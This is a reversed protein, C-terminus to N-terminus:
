EYERVGENCDYLGEIKEIKEKTKNLFDKELYYRIKYGMLPYKGGFAIINRKDSLKNRVEEPTLLKRAVTNESINGDFGMGMKKSSQNKIKITKEGLIDSILQPTEKDSPTPTYYVSVMCNDLITNKDGYVNKLQNLAQAIIVAKMGYGAIYALAKELLPVKGFAPFEDLMLMMRHKHPSSNIDKLEPCLTGIIQTLLLRVLPSLTDIAEAEIVVYLDVPSTFNMLDTVKFDVKKSNKRIIPDKFLTLTALASSIISAAEKEDKNIIEAATRAVIPHTKPSIGERQSEEYIKEFIEPDEVHEHAILDRIRDFLPATTSTLYDVLDGLSAVEGDKHKEYLVHLIMGVLFTSASIEWHDRKKGVGPDTLIDAIIQVDKFEWSSRLRVGALPNYSISHESYPAFKLLKHKLINKRYGSTLAWNEGKLDLVLSSGQWNLLTPVIIGVGKGSRTPAIVSIHTKDNEIITKGNKIRGLIVGDRYKGKPSLVGMESLESEKIWRASGHSDLEQKKLLYFYIAISFTFLLTAGLTTSIDVHRKLYPNEYLIKWKLISYPNYLKDYIPKGLARHYNLARALNQTAVGLSITTTTLIVSTVLIYKKNKGNLKKM